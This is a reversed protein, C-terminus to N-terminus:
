VLGHACEEASKRMEEKKKIIMIIIEFKKADGGPASNEVTGDLLDKLTMTWIRSLRKIHFEKLEVVHFLLEGFRLGSVHVRAQPPEFM